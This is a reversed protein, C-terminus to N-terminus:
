AQRESLKEEILKSAEAKTMGERPVIGLKKMYGLQKATVPKNNGNGNKNIEEMRRDKAIEAMIAISLTEKDKVEPLKQQIAEFLAIYEEVKIEM